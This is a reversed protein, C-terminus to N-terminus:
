NHGEEPVECVVLGAWVEEQNVLWLRTALLWYKIDGGSEQRQGNKKFERVRSSSPVM